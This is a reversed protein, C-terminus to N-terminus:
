VRLVRRDEPCMKLVGEAVPSDPAGIDIATSAAHGPPPFRVASSNADVATLSITRKVAFPAAKLCQKHEAALAEVGADLDRLAEALGGQPVHFNCELLSALDPLTRDALAGHASKPHGLLQMIM